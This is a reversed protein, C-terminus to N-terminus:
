LILVGFSLFDFNVLTKDYKFYTIKTNKTNIIGIKYESLFVGTGAKQLYMHGAPVSSPAIPSRELLTFSLLRRISPGIKVQFNKSITDIITADINM